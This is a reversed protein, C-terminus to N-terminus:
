RGKKEQKNRMKQTPFGQWLVRSYDEMRPDFSGFRGFGIGTGVSIDRDKPRKVSAIKRAKKKM